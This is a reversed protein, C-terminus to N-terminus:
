PPDPDSSRRGTGTALALTTAGEVLGNEMHSQALITRHTYRYLQQQLEQDEETCAPEGWRELHQM